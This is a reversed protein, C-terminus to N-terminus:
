SGCRARASFRRGPCTGSAGFTKGDCGCYQRLDRTCPRARPACTGPRDDTCGEGECIGSACEPGVLCAAGAPKGPNPAAASGTEPRAGGPPPSPQLPQEDAVAGPDKTIPPTETPTPAPRSPPSAPGACGAPALAVTLAVTLALLQILLTRLAM